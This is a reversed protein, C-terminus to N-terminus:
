RSKGRKAEFMAADARAFFEKPTLDPEATPDWYAIGVSVDFGLDRIGQPQENRFEDIAAHIYDREAEVIEAMTKPRRRDADDEHGDGAEQEHLEINSATAFEDGGWRSLVDELRDHYITDSGRQFKSKLKNGFDVLKDDGLPHGYTDNVAKFADIDFLRIIMPTGLKMRAAVDRQWAAKNLLGTLSDHDSSYIADEVAAEMEILEKKQSEIIADKEDLHLGVFYPTMSAHARDYVASYAIREEPSLSELYAAHEAVQQATVEISESAAYSGEPINKVM